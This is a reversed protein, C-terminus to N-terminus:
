RRGHSRSAERARASLRWDSRETRRSGSRSASRAASWPAPAPPWPRTSAHSWVAGSARSAPERGLPDDAQSLLRDLGEIEQALFVPDDPDGAIGEPWRPNPALLRPNRREGRGVCRLDHRKCGVQDKSEGIELGSDDLVEGPCAKGDWRNLWRSTAPRAIIRVSPASISRRSAASVNASERAQRRSALARSCCSSAATPAASPQRRSVVSSSSSLRRIQDRPTRVPDDAEPPGADM